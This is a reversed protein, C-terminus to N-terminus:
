RERRQESYAKYQEETMIKQLTQEYAERAARRKEVAQKRETERKMKEEESLPAQRKAPHPAYPCDTMQHRGSTCSDCVCAAPRPGECCTRQRCDHRHHRPAHPRMNRPGEPRFRPQEGRQKMWTVNAETLEKVQKEDLGYREAMDLAMWEARLRLRQEAYDQRKDQAKVSGVGMLLSVLFCVWVLNM